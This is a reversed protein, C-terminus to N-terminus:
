LTFDVNKCNGVLDRSHLGTLKYKGRPGLFSVYSTAETIDMRKDIVGYLCHSFPLIEIDTHLISIIKIRQLIPHCPAYLSLFHIKQLLPFPPAGQFINGMVFPPTQWQGVRSPSSALRVLDGIQVGGEKRKCEEDM